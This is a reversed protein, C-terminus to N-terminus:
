LHKASFEDDTCLKYKTRNTVLNMFFDYVVLFNIMVFTM